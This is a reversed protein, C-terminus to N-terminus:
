SKPDGSLMRDLEAQVAPLDREMRRAYDVARQPALIQGEETDFVVGDTARAYAAAAMYAALCEALNRGRRFSLAFKWARGFDLTGYAALLEHADDHFCEFGTKKEASQAPLFGHLNEFLGAASLRLAFGEADIAQQWEAISALRRDSLAHIEMSMAFEWMPHPGASGNLNHKRGKALLSFM